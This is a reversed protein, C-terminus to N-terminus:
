DTLLFLFVVPAKVYKFFAQEHTSTLGQESNDHNDKTNDNKRATSGCHKVTTSHTKKQKAKRKSVSCCASLLNDTRRKM